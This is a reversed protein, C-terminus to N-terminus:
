LSEGQRRCETMARTLMDFVQRFTRQPADNWLAVSESGDWAADLTIQRKIYEMVSTRYEADVHDVLAGMICYQGLANRRYCQCWGHIVLAHRLQEIQQAIKKYTM